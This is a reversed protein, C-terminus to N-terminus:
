RLRAGIGSTFVPADDAGPAKSDRSAAEWEFDLPRTGNLAEFRERFIRHVLVRCDLGSWISLPKFRKAHKGCEACTPLRMKEKTQDESGPLYTSMRALPLMWDPLAFATRRYRLTFTQMRETPVGCLFCHAPLQSVNEITLMTMDPNTGTKDNQDKGCALCLGDPRVMVDNHCHPCEAYRIELRPKHESADM